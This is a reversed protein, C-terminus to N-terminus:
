DLVRLKTLLMKAAEQEAEKISKGEGKGIYSIKKYLIKVEIFFM